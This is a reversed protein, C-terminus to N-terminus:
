EGVMDKMGNKMMIVVSRKRKNIVSQSAMVAALNSALRSISKGIVAGDDAAADNTKMPPSYFLTLVANFYSYNPLKLILFSTLIRCFQCFDTVATVKGDSFV